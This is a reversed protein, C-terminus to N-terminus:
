RLTSAAPIVALGCHDTALFSAITPLERHSFRFCRTWYYTELLEKAVERRVNRASVLSHVPDELWRYAHKGYRQRTLYTFAAQQGHSRRVIVDYDSFPELCYAYIHNRLERPLRFYIASSLDQVACDDDM